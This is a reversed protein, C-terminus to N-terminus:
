YRRSAGNFRLLAKIDCLVHLVKFCRLVDDNQDKVYVYSPAESAVCM